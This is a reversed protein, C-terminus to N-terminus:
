LGAADQDPPMEQGRTGSPSAQEPTANHGVDQQAQLGAGTSAKSAAPPSASTAESRAQQKRAKAKKKKAKKAAAQAAEHAEEAILEEAVAAVASAEEAILEETAAATRAEDAKRQKQQRANLGDRQLQVVGKLLNCYLFTSSGGLLTVAHLRM